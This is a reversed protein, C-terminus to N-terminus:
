HFQGCQTRFIKKQDYENGNNNSSQVKYKFIGLWNFIERTWIQHVHLGCIGEPGGGERLWFTELCRM